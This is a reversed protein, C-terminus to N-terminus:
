LQKETPFLWKGLPVCENGFEEQEIDCTSNVLNGQVLRSIKKIDFFSLECEKCNHMM